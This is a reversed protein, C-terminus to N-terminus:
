LMARNPSSPRIGGLLGPGQGPERIPFTLVFPGLPSTCMKSFCVQPGGHILYALPYKKDESFNSPKVVLAHVQHAGAGTFWIDSVQETSLGFSAGNRSNSSVMRAGAPSAPDLITFVSNDILSSSSIFLENSGTRLPQVDSVAGPGTLSQPHHVSHDPSVTLDIKFLVDDGNDEVLLLLMTGDPSFSVSSPSRDWETDQDEVNLIQASTWSDSSDQMNAIDPIHVLRNRDSEYRNQQMQLFAASRGDPSFVPSTAAGQLSELELKRPKSAPNESFDSVPIYYLNCKTNFAPNLAPDKAVFILGNSSIDFHDKGGFTPIPSELGTDKLANTVSTLDWKDGSKQLLGYWIANKQLTVYEDWHRVMTSDYLRATSRRKPEQEQNYLTGNPWSKGTLAVAMRGPGMSKLKLNSIGGPLIGAVYTEGVKDVKGVVLKTTGNDGKKLWLLETSDELWNPESINEDNAILNSQASSISIVKIETTKKNAEFSYTSVSYVALNGDPDPVAPSRRPASLLVDPTFMDAYFSGDSTESSDASESTMPDDFPSSSPLSFYLFTVVCATLIISISIVKSSAMPRAYFMSRLVHLTLRHTSEDRDRHRFMPSRFNSWGRGSRQCYSSIDLFKDCSILCNTSFLILNILHDIKLTGHYRAWRCYAFATSFQGSQM